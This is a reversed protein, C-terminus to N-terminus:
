ADNTVISFSSVGEGTEEFSGQVLDTSSKNMGPVPPAPLEDDSSPQQPKEYLSSSQRTLAPKGKGKGNGKVNGKNNGKAEILKSVIVRQIFPYVEIMKQIDMKLSPDKLVQNKGLFDLYKSLEYKMDALTSESKTITDTLAKIREKTTGIRGLVLDHAESNLNELVETEDRMRGSLVKFPLVAAKEFDTLLRNGYHTSIFLDISDADLLTALLELGTLIERARALYAKNSVLSEETKLNQYLSATLNFRAIAETLETLAPQFTKNFVSLMSQYNAEGISEIFQEKEQVIM